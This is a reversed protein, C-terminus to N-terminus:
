IKDSFDEMYEPDDETIDELKKPNGAPTLEGFRYFAADPVIRKIKQKEQEIRIATKQELEPPPDGYSFFIIRIDGLWTKLREDPLEAEEGNQAYLFIQYLRTYGKKRLVEIVSEPVRSTITGSYLCYVFLSTQDSFDEDIATMTFNIHKNFEM